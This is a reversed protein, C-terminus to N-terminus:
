ARKPRGAPKQAAFAESVAQTAQEVCTRSIDYGLYQRNHRMCAIGASGTGMFPDLVLENSNSTSLVIREMIAIPIQNPSHAKREKYTGCIRSIAWTDSDAPIAQEIQDVVDGALM